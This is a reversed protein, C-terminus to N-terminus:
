EARDIVCAAEHALGGRLFAKVSYIMHEMSGVTSAAAKEIAAHPDQCRANKANQLPHSIASRWVREM